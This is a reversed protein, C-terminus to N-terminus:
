QIIKFGNDDRVALVIELESILSVLHSVPEGPLLIVPVASRGAERALRTYDLVQGIATRVFERASSKKAEVVWGSEEVYLDPEIKAGASYLQLRLPTEGGRRVWEGFDRQLEFEIRSVVREGPPTPAEIVLPSPDPPTWASVRAVDAPTASWPELAEVDADVPILNFIIGNRLNKKSDPIRKIAFAPVGTTFEGVYTVSTGNKTFLRIPRNNQASDRLIGNGNKFHQDSTQGQGTYAFSGDSQLGEFEDYGHRAGSEPSTVVLIDPISRPTIIGSQRQGGYADHLDRRLVSDGVELTWIRPEAIRGSLQARIASAHADDLEGSPEGGDLAWFVERLLRQPVNLELSLQAITRGM